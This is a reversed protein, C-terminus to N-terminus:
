TPSSPDNVRIVSSIKGAAASLQPLHQITQVLFGNVVAESQVADLPNEIWRSGHMMTACLFPHDAVWDVQNGKGKSKM